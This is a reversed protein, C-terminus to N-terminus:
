CTEEGDNGNSYKLEVQGDEHIEVKGVVKAPVGVAISYSPIDKTVVAGAGIICHDGITVDPLIIVGSGIYTHKGIKVPKKVVDLKRESVVRLHTTHTYIMVGSSIDCGDGIELGGTADLIVLPGIWVDKGIKPRGFVYVNEYVSSGDGAELFKAKVWRDALMEDTPLLRNWRGMMALALSRRLKEFRSKEQDAERDLM